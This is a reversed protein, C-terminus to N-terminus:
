KACLDLDTDKIILKIVEVAHEKHTPLHRITGQTVLITATMLGKVVGHSPKPPSSKKPKDSTPLTSGKKLPRNDKGENKQKSLGTTVGKPASSSAGVKEKQKCAAASAKVLARQKAAEM